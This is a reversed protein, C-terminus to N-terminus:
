PTIFITGPRNFYSDKHANILTHVCLGMVMLHAATLAAISMGWAPSVWLSVVPLLGEWYM